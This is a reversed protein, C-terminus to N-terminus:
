FDFVILVCMSFMLVAYTKYAKKLAKTVKLTTNEYDNEFSIFITENQM